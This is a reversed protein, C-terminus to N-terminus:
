WCSTNVYQLVLDAVDGDGNADIGSELTEEAFLYLVATGDIVVPFTTGDRDGTGVINFSMFLGDGRHIRHAVLAFDNTDGDENMDGFGSAESANGLIRIFSPCVQFALPGDINIYGEGRVATTGVIRFYIPVVDNGDGDLNLDAGANDTEPATIFFVPEGAFCLVESTALGLTAGPIGPGALSNFWAVNDSTDSDGQGGNWNTGGAGQDGESAVFILDTDCVQLSAAGQRSAVGLSRAAAPAALDAWVPVQDVTDLDANFDGLLGNDSEVAVFVLRRGSVRTQGPDCSIGGGPITEVGSGLDYVAAISDNTDGDAFAINFNTGGEGGEDIAYVIRLAAGDAAVLVPGTVARARGPAPGLPVVAGTSEVLAFAVADSADTDLNWDIMGDDDESVAFAAVGGAGRLTQTVADWARGSNRLTGSAPAFSRVVFDLFDADGNLDTAADFELTVFVFATGDFVIPSGAATVIGTVLPNGPGVPLTTDYVVLVHDAGDADGSLDLGGQDFEFCSWAVYRTDAALPPRGALGLNSVTGTDPDLVHVVNDAGDGDGNRDVSGQASESVFHAARSGVPVAGAGTPPVAVRANGSVVVDSDGASGGGCAALICAGGALVILVQPRM